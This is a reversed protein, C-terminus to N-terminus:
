PNESHFCVTGGLHIYDDFFSPYSKKVAEAGSIVVPSRCRLSAAAASMAIRHDGWADVTGGRLSPAGRVTLGDERPACDGGLDRIMRCVSEIRDSEKLRLRSAGTISTVGDAFAAAVALVPVLDPIQSADIEAGHLSSAKARVKEGDSSVDGGMSRLLQAIIRDGQASDGSLGTLTVDGGLVGAVLWFAAASWDGEVRLVGPSRYASPFVRFADQLRDVRVGFSSQVGLTLDVYPASELRGSVRLVSEGESLPLALLLGTFFQSSIGGDLSFDGPLLKGKVSLPLGDGFPGSGFVRVGHSRLADTLPSLPRKGLRGEGYFVTETGLSAAVPLLFRLTSGSERCFLEAKEPAKGPIVTLFDGDRTIKAGLARLCNATADIDECSLPCLLRTATDALAACILARHAHSKSPVARLTGSLSAPSVVARM